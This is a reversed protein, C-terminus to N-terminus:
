GYGPGVQQAFQIFNDIKVNSAPTPGWLQQVLPKFLYRRQLSCLFCMRDAASQVLIEKTSLTCKGLHPQALYLLQWPGQALLM